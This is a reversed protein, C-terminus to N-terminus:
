HGTKIRETCQENLHGTKIRETCQEILGNTMHKSVTKIQELEIDIYLAQDLIDRSIATQSGAVTHM